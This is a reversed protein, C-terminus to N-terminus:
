SVPVEGVYKVLSSTETTMDWLSAMAVVAKGTHTSVRSAIMPILQQNSNGPFITIECVYVPSKFFIRPPLNSFDVHVM